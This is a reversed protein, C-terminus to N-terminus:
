DAFKIKRSHITANKLEKYAKSKTMPYFFYLDWVYELNHVLYGSEQEATNLLVELCHIYYPMDFKLVDNDCFFIYEAACKWCCGCRNPLLDANPFNNLTRTRFLERFRNPTVCSITYPLYQSEKLLAKYATHYNKNPIHVKFNPIFRQIVKNYLGWVDSCDGACVEFAVDELLSTRFNGTAVRTTIGQRVGWTLAMNMMIMNKMPHEIWVHQGSYKVSDIYLPLGLKETAQQAIKWEDYYTKNIGRIHYPFVNYGMKQYHRIVSFSDKGGSYCVIINKSDFDPLKLPKIKRDIFELNDFHRGSYVNFLRFIPELSKDFTPPILRATKLHKNLPTSDDSCHSYLLELEDMLFHLNKYGETHKIMQM